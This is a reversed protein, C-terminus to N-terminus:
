LKPKPNPEVVKQIPVIRLIRKQIARM